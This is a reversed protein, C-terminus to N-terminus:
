ARLCRRCRSQADTGYNSYTENTDGIKKSSIMTLSQEGEAPVPPLPPCFRGYKQYIEQAWPSFPSEMSAREASIVWRNFAQPLPSLAASPWNASWTYGSNRWIARRYM